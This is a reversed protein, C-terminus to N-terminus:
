WSGRWANLLRRWAWGCCQSCARRRWLPEADLLLKLGGMGILVSDGDLRRDGELRLPRRSSSSRRRGHLIRPGCPAVPCHFHAIPLHSQNMASLECVPYSKKSCLHLPGPASATQLILPQQPYVAQLYAGCAGVVCAWWYGFGGDKLM